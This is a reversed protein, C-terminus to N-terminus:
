RKHHHRQFSDPKAPSLSFLVNLSEQGPLLRPRHLSLSPLKDSQHNAPKNKQNEFMKRMLLYFCFWSYLVLKYWKIPITQCIYPINDCYISTRYQFDRLVSYLLICVNSYKQLVTIMCDISGMKLLIFSRAPNRRKSPFGVRNSINNSKSFPGQQTQSNASFSLCLCGQIDCCRM